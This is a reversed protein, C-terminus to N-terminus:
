EGVFCNVNGRIDVAVSERTNELSLMSSFRGGRSRQSHRVYWRVYGPPYLSGQLHDPVAVVVGVAHAGQALQRKTAISCGGGSVIVVGPHGENRLRLLDAQQISSYSRCGDDVSPPPLGLRQLNTRSLRLGLCLLPQSTLLTLFGAFIICM